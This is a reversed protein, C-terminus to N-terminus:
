TQLNIIHTSLHQNKGSLYELILVVEDNTSEMDKFARLLWNLTFNFNGHRFRYLKMVNPHDLSRLIDM